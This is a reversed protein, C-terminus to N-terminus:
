RENQKIHKDHEGPNDLNFMIRFSCIYLLSHCLSIIGDRLRVMVNRFSNPQLFLNTGSRKLCESEAPTSHRLSWEM